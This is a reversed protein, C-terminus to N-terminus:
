RAIGALQKHQVALANAEKAEDRSLQVLRDCHAASQAIKTGRYAQAMAAHDNAGATYRKAATLFYVSLARHDAPTSAKAALATLDADSPEPAGAGGHFLGSGKPATSSTGGALRTHHVALERVTEASETNLQALRKCHDSASNVAVQRAPTGVFAHAMATHRKAEATYQEALATFHAALKANDGPDASAVLNRVELANLIPSSGTQAAASGAFTLIVFAGMTLARISITRM